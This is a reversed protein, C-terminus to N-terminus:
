RAAATKLALVNTVMRTGANAAALRVVLYQALLIAGYGLAAARNEMEILAWPTFVALFIVSISAYDRLLLYLKHSSSVAVDDRVTRYLKYWAANQEKPDVPSSGKFMTNIRSPNIRSDAAAHVSFARHGPLAHKWRWFVLTAKLDASPLANLVAVIIGAAGIPLLTQAQSFVAKLGDLRIANGNIVGYFFLANVAVITWLTLNNQEKLSKTM